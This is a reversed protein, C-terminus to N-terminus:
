ATDPARRLLRVSVAGLGLLSLGCIALFLRHWGQDVLPGFAASGVSGGFFLFFAFLAVATGRAEPVLETARTQLTTHLAIYGLGLMAIGVAYLAIPGHPIMLLYGTGKLAGGLAALHPEPVLSRVRALSVGGLLTAVGYVAILLGVELENLGFRAVAVAGLYTFGGWLFLGEFGVVAYLVRAARRGLIARYREWAGAGSGAGGTRGAGSRVGFLLLAPVLAALGTGAFLARWSVFHAVTGGIASSLSQALSTVAVFRGIAGQRERYPVSDGIYVLALPFIAAAFVGTVFRLAHLELVTPAFSTALAGLGFGIAAVRVVRIRGLQDALPGYVFQCLGYPLMYATMALGMATVSTALSQAMAPLLPTMMRSDVTVLFALATLCPLPSVGRPRPGGGAGPAGARDRPANMRRADGSPDAARAAAARGM